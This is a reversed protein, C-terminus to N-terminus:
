EGDWDVPHDERSGTRACCAHGIGDHLRARVHFPWRHERLFRALADRDAATVPRFNPEPM